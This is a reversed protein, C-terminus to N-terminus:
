LSQHRDYRLCSAHIGPGSRAFASFVQDAAQSQFMEAKHPGSLILILMKPTIPPVADGVAREGYDGRVRATPM